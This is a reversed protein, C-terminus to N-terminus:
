KQDSESAQDQPQETIASTGAATRGQFGRAEAGPRTGHRRDAQRDPFPMRIEAAPERRSTGMEGGKRRGRRVRRQETVSIRESADERAATRDPGQVAGRAGNEGKDAPHEGLFDRRPSAPVWVDVCLTM